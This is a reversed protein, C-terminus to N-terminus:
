EESPYDGLSEVGSSSLSELQLASGLWPQLALRSLM